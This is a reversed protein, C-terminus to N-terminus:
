LISVGQKNEISCFYRDLLKLGINNAIVKRLAGHSYIHKESMAEKASRGYLFRQVEVSKSM